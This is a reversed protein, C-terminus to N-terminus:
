ERALAMEMWLKPTINITFHIKENFYELPSRFHVANTYFAKICWHENSQSVRENYPKIEQRTVAKTYIQSRNQKNVVHLLNVKLTNWEFVLSIYWPAWHIEHFWVRRKTNEAFVMTLQVCKWIILSICSFLTCIERQQFWLWLLHDHRFVSYHFHMLNANKSKSVGWIFHISIISRKDLWM